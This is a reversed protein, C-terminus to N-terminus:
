WDIQAGVKFFRPQLIATPIQWNAGGGALAVFNNNQTLITNANTANYLDLNITTRTTGFRFIKAFRLDLQNLGKGYQTNPEILNVTANAAGGSLPRGLSPIIVANTAVYNAAVM